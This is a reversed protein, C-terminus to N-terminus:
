GGAALLECRPLVDRICQYYDRAQEFHKEANRVDGHPAGRARLGELRDRAAWMDSRAAVLLLRDLKRSNEDAQTTAAKLNQTLSGAQALTITHGQRVYRADHWAVYSENVQVGLAFLPIASLLSTIGIVRVVRQPKSAVGVPAQSEELV